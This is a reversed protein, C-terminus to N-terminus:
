DEKVEEDIVNEEFEDLDIESLTKDDDEEPAEVSKVSVVEVVAPKEEKLGKEKENTFNVYSISIMVFVIVYVAARTFLQKNSNM